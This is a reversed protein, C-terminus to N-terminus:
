KSMFVHPRRRGTGPGRHHIGPCALPLSIRAAERPCGRGHMGLTKSCSSGHQKEGAIIFAPMKTVFKIGLIISLSIGGIEEALAPGPRTPLSPSEANNGSLWRDLGNSVQRAIGLQLSVGADTDSVAPRKCLVVGQLLVGTDNIMDQRSEKLRTTVLRITSCAPDM